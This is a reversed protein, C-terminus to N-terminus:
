VSLHIANRENLSYRSNFIGLSYIENNRAERIELHEINLLNLDLVIIQEEEEVLLSGHQRVAM